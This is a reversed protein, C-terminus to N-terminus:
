SRLEQLMAAYRQYEREWSHEALFRRARRAMARAEEPHDRLHVLHAAFTELDGDEFLLCEDPRFLSEMIRTRVAVIPLEMAAFEPVKLSLAMDIHVDQHPTFAGVSARSMAAPVEHLGLSREVRVRDRVGLEEALEVVEELPRGEGEALRPHIVLRIGPIREQVVPLVRVLQDVGHRRTVTGLYLIRFEQPDEPGTWPHRSSDFIRTDAVNMISISTTEETSGREIAIERFIHTAYIMRDAVFHSILEQLRFPLMLPHEVSLGTKSAFVEPMLDHADLVLRAGALRPVLAAFLLFDPMNHVHVIEPRRRFTSRAAWLMAWLFFLLYEILTQLHGGRRRAMPVRRLEVGEIIEVPAKGKGRLAVVEVEHGDRHLSEAYRRVRADNEYYALVLMLVKM